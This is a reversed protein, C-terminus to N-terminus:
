LSFRYANYLSLVIILVMVGIFLEDVRRDNMRKNLARGVFGGLLGGCVMLILSMPNLEPIRWTIVTTLLNAIQSFLIIYLSNQAATKPPMSFFFFLVVLNLPGGGIGLFSSFVGLVVGIFLCAATNEVKKTDIRKSKIRYLIIAASIAALCISQILGVVSVNNTMNKILAFLSNGAVGGLVGGLALPTSTKVDVASERAALMKGVSYASMALVTCGSLFSIAAVDALNFIDLAPKIIIGGGIGCIAGAVSSIFSILFFM